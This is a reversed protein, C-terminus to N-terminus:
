FSDIDMQSVSLELQRLQSDTLKQFQIFKQSREVFSKLFPQLYDDFTSPRECIAEDLLRQHEENM